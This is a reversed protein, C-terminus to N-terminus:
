ITIRILVGKRIPEFCISRWHQMIDMGILGHACDLKEIFSAKTFPSTWAIVPKNEHTKRPDLLNVQVSHIFADSMGGVGQVANEQVEVDPHLNNHGFKQALVAPFCTDESGTDLVMNVGYCKDTLM